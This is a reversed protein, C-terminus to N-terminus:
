EWLRMHVLVGVQEQVFGLCMNYVKEIFQGNYESMIYYAGGTIERAPELDYLM